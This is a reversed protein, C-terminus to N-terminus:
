RIPDKVLEMRLITLTKHRMDEPPIHIAILELEKIKAQLQLKNLWPWGQSVRDFMDQYVKYGNIESM